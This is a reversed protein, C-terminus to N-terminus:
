NLYIDNIRLLFNISFLTFSVISFYLKISLSSLITTATDPPGSEIDSKSIKYLSDGNKIEYFSYFPSEINLKNDNKM